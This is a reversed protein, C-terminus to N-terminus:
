EGKVENKILEKVELNSLFDDVLSNTTNPEYRLKGQYLYKRAEYLYKKIIANEDRLRQVEKKLAIESESM